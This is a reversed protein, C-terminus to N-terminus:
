PKQAIIANWPSDSKTFYEVNKFGVAQLIEKIKPLSVLHVQAKAIKKANKVEYVGDKIMENILILKRNPKLVRKIELFADPLKKWFYYTEIATALDFYTNPFGSNDVKGEVVAVRNQDILEKNIERSIAVMDPSYDIGFVKGLPAQQALRNVTKGGGCGIDLIIFNPEIKAKKLGWTTLAYHKQNMSAAISRGQVGTPCKYQGLLDVDKISQM